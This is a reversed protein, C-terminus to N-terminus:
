KENEMFTKEHFHITVYSCFSYIGLSCAKKSLNNEQKRFFNENRLNEKWDLSDIITFGDFQFVLYKFSFKLEDPCAIFINRNIIFM